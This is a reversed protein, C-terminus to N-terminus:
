QKSQRKALTIHFEQRRHKSSSHYKKRLDELEKSEVQLVAYTVNKSSHVLKVRKISFPIYEGIETPKKHENAYFVTIHAGPIKKSEQPKKFGEEELHLLPYLDNVYADDVKLYVYGDRKQLLQGKLPLNDKAYEEVDAFRHTELGVKYWYICALSLLFLTPILWNKM